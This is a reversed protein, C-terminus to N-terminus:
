VESMAVSVDPSFHDARLSMYLPIKSEIFPFVYATPLTNNPIVAAVSQNFCSDISLISARIYRTISILVAGKKAFSTASEEMGKKTIYKEAEKIPFQAIEGSSLWPIDGNCYEKNDTDPTGGLM